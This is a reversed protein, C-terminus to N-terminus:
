WCIACVSLQTKLVTCPICTPHVTRELPEPSKDKQEKQAFSGTEENAFYMYFNIM